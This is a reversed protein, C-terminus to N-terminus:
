GLRVVAQLRSGELTREHRAGAEPRPQPWREAAALFGLCFVVWFTRPLCVKYAVLM